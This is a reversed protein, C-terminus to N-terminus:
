FVSSEAPRLLPAAVLHHSPMVRLKDREMACVEVLHGIEIELSNWCGELHSEDEVVCAAFHAMVLRLKDGDMCSGYVFCILEGYIPVFTQTSMVWHVLNQLLNEYALDM